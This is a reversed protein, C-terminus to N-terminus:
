RALAGVVEQWWSREDASPDASLRRRAYRQIQAAAGIALSPGAIAYRGDDLLVLSGPQDRRSRLHRIVRCSEVEEPHGADGDHEMWPRTSFIVSGSRVHPRRVADPEFPGEQWREMLAPFQRAVEKRLLVHLRDGAEIQTSGRPPIAEGRRVIVNLLADRPLGLDRVFHGVVADSAAVPFEVVEAGLRRITGSEAIPRPLAPEDTTLGLAKALPEFTSGQLLTSVVVAFFAINFFERSHPVGEIVPFTALVVPVGGRLGAWGLAFREAASFHDFATAVAASLPRAVVVLVLALVTGELWVDGLQSPFVLLGLTLFLGIQAVWALGQHFVTITNRAPIQASGLVLGALYIALFGSGHLSDAAGFALAGAAMSAVPYLGATAFSMRRMAWAAAFGVGLGAAVGISIQQAFLGVMDVLGYSPEDIWDIFGLVLLIAVPDNFGAEAELTRALRRRLTSTRLLSFIAAGDTAALISGLLLGELTSLDFLWIAALATIVATGLTAFVALMLGPRLVPKIESFGAVLGGEFLIAALAIIGVRRALEYDDLKIWGTGDSGIIMGLGLFLLLGPVRLRGALLAAALATALLAGAVLILQGDSM